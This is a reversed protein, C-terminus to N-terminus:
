TPPINKKKDKECPRISKKDRFIKESFIKKLFNKRSKKVAAYRSIEPYVIRISNIPFQKHTSSVDPHRPGEALPRPHRFVPLPM